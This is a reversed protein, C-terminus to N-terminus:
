LAVILGVLIWFVFGQTARSIITPFHSDMALYVYLQSALHSDIRDLFGGHSGLFSSFDKLKVLRKWISCMADGFCMVFLWGCILLWDMQPSIYKIFFAMFLCGGLYGM